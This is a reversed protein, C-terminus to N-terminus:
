VQFITVCTKIVDLIKLVDRKEERRTCVRPAVPVATNCYMMQKMEMECSFMM